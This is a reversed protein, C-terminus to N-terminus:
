GLILGIYGVIDFRIDFFAELLLRGDRFFLVLQTWSQGGFIGMQAIDHKVQAISNEM